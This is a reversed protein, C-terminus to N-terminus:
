RVAAQGQYRTGDTAPYTNEFVCDDTM